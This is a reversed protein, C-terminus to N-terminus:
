KGEMEKARMAHYKAMDEAEQALADAAKSYKGCHLRMKKIYANEGTDKPNRAVTKSYDALMKKHAEAEKRYEAAKKEYEAARERHEQATQPAKMEQGHDHHDQAVVLVSLTGIILLLFALKAITNHIKTMNSKMNAKRSILQKTERAPM